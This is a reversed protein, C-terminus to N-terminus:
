GSAFVFPPFLCEHSLHFRRTAIRSRCEGVRTWCCTRSALSNHFMIQAFVPRIPLIWLHYQASSAIGISAHWLLVQFVIFCPSVFGSESVMWYCFLLFFFMSLVHLWGTGDHRCPLQACTSCYFSLRRIRISAIVLAFM